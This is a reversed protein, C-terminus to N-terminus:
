KETFTGAFDMVCMHKYKPHSDFAVGVCGFDKYLINMRHGREPVGDDILLSIVVKRAEGNGYDINEGATGGWEGYRAIRTFPTSKRKGEHGVKGNRSQERAHDSAANSMGRSPQLLGVSQSAKLERICEQLAQVGEETEIPVPDNPFTFLNGKYNNLLPKLFLEAYKAPNDRVMNLELILDKEQDNLYSVYRAVDLYPIDWIQNVLVDRNQGSVSVALLLLVSLVVGTKFRNRKM